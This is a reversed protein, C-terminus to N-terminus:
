LLELRKGDLKLTLSNLVKRGVIAIDTLDIARTPVMAEILGLSLIRRGERSTVYGRLPFIECEIEHDGVGYLYAKRAASVGELLLALEESAYLAGDFGTDVLCPGEFRKSSAELGLWIVPINPLKKGSEDM